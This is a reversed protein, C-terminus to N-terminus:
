ESVRSPKFVLHRKFHVYMKGDPKKLYVLNSGPASGFSEIVGETNIPCYSENYGLGGKVKVRDGIRPEM